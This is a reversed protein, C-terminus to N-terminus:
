PSTYPLAIFFTTGAGSVGTSEVWIAGGMAEILQKCLYLGLGSGRQMSNIANPLRMFKTFLREQDEPAIGDGQDQISLLVLDTSPPSLHSFHTLYSPISTQAAQINVHEARICIHTRKPTYKMANGLVNLLVQRLRSEDVRIYLADDIAVDVKRGQSVLNPELIDLVPLLAHHLQVTELTLAIEKQNMRSTDMVNGLLLIVEESARRAGTIFRTRNKESLTAGYISLLELYGQIATLPTRLEHSATLLFHNKLQESEEAYQVAERLDTYLRANTIAIGAQLSIEQLMEVHRQTYAYPTYSQVSLMGLVEEGFHLPVFILSESLRHSGIVDDYEEETESTSEILDNFVKYEEQTSFLFANQEKLFLKRALVPIVTYNEPPYVIGEDVLYDMVLKDKAHFYRSVFFADLPVVRRVQEYVTEYVTRLDHLTSPSFLAHGIEILAAHEESRQKAAEYLRAGEIVIAAQNALLELCSMLDVDPRLGDHPADPTLLGLLTNEASILPIVALDTSQWISSTSPSALVAQEHSIILFNAAFAENHWLPSETPIFYSSGIRYREDIILAVVANPLPHQRLYIEEEASIGCTAQAHFLGDTGALYLASHRFGLAECTAQAVQTLLTNVDVQLRLSSGIDTVYKLVKQQRLINTSRQMFSVYLSTSNQSMNQEKVKVIERIKISSITGCLLCIHLPTIRKYYNKSEQKRWM